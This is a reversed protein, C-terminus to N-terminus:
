KIDLYTCITNVYHLYNSSIQEMYNVKIHKSIEAFVFILFVEFLFIQLKEWMCNYRDNISLVTFMEM